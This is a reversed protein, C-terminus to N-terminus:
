EPSLRQGTELAIREDAGAPPEDLGLLAAARRGGQGRPQQKTEQLHLRALRALYRAVLREPLPERHLLDLFSETESVVARSYDGMPAHVSSRWRNALRWLAMLREWNARQPHADGRLWAYVTPREVRLAYALDTMTLSFVSRVAGLMESPLVPGKSIEDIDDELPGMGELDLEDLHWGTMRFPHSSEGMLLLVPSSGFTSRIWDREGYLGVPFRDSIQLFGTSPHLEMAAALPDGWASTSISM